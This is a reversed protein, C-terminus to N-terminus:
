GLRKLFAEVDECTELDIILDTIDDSAIAEARVPEGAKHAARQARAGLEQQAAVDARRTTRRIKMFGEVAKMQKSKLHDLEAGDIEFAQGAFYM